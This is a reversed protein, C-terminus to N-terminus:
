GANPDVAVFVCWIGVFHVTAHEHSLTRKFQECLEAIRKISADHKKKNYFIRTFWSRDNLGRDVNAM